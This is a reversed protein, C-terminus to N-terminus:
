RYNIFQLELKYDQDKLFAIVTQLDDRSKGSVRVQDDMIQAQVKIKLGKIDKVIKRATETEIGVKLKILQRVTGGSAEEIKGFEMNRIPVGRQVIKTELIDIVNKLKFDDDSLIKIHDDELSVVSVSKKFDFRQRIEKNTQNIANDVEQMNVTSVIDFSEAKAMM